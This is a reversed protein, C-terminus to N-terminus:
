EGARTTPQVAPPVALRALYSVLATIVSKAVALALAVWYAETWEIGGAVAATLVVAVAALVDVGLGQALTRLARNGADRVVANPTPITNM